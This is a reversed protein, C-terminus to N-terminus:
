AAVPAFSVPAAAFSVPLKALEDDFSLFSGNNARTM